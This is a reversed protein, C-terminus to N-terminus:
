MLGWSSEVLAPGVISESFALSVEARREVIGMVVACGLFQVAKMEYPEAAWVHEVHLIAFPEAVM